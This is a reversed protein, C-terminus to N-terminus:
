MLGLATWWPVSLLTATLNITLFAISTKGIDDFSARGESMGVLSLVSVNMYNLLYFQGSLHAVFVLLLPSIGCGALVVILMASIVMYNIMVFRALTCFMIIVVLLLVKHSACVEVLPTAFGSVWSAVGTTNLLAVIGLLTGVMVVINWQVKACFDERRFLGAMVLIVWAALAIAYAPVHHLYGETIWAFVAGGLVALALLEKKSVPGLERCKDVLAEKPLAEGKKGPAFVLMVYLISLVFM